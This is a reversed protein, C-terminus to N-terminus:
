RSNFQRKDCHPALACSHWRSTPASVRLGAVETDSYESEKSKAEEPHVSIGDILKKKFRFQKNM